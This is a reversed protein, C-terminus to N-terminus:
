NISYSYGVQLEKDFISVRSVSNDECFISSYSEVEKKFTKISKDRLLDINATLEGSWNDLVQPVQDIFTIIQDIKYEVEDTFQSTLINRFKIKYYDEIKKLKQFQELAECSHNYFKEARGLSIDKHSKSDLFIEFKEGNSIRKLLSYLKIEEVINSSTESHTYSFEMPVESGSSVGTKLIIEASKFTVKLHSLRQGGFFELDIGNFEWNDEFIFDAKTKYSAARKIILNEFDNGTGWFLEGVKLELKYFLKAELKVPQLTEGSVLAWYNQM